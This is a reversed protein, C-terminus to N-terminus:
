KILMINNFHFIIFTKWIDIHQVQAMGHKSFILIARNLTAQTLHYKHYINDQAQAIGYHILIM